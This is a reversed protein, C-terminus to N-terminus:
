SQRSIRNLRGPLVSPMQRISLPKQRFHPAPYYWRYTTFFSLTSLWRSTKVDKVEFRCLVKEHPMEISSRIFHVVILLSPEFRIEQREVITRTQLDHTTWSKGSFFFIM